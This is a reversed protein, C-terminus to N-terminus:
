LNLPGFDVTQLGNGGMQLTLLGDLDELGELGEIANNDAKLARLHILGQLGRLSTLGNCSIDLYQLHQLHHWASVDSLENGRVNLLRVSSPVGNLDGIRNNSVDLEEAQNCFEDLMHLSTLGRDHLDVSRIYEWYPEYPELDTLHKVLDQATLSLRGNAEVISEAMKRKTMTGLGADVPRDVQHVTFDALPSLQFGIGSRQGTTPPALLSKSVPLPTSIAVDLTRNGKVSFQVLSMEEHEDLRSMPPAM